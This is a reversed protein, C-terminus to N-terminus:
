EIWTCHSCVLRILIYFTYLRTFRSSILLCLLSDDDSAVPTYAMTSEIPDNFNVLTNWAGRFHRSSRNKERTSRRNAVAPARKEFGHTAGLASGAHEQKWIVFSLFWISSFFFFYEASIAIVAFITIQSITEM